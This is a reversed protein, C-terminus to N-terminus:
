SSKFSDHFAKKLSFLLEEGKIRPSVRPLVMLGLEIDEGLALVPVLLDYRVRLAEPTEASDIDVICLQLSPHIEHLNLARLKEELGECLCCDKRSFLFLNSIEM